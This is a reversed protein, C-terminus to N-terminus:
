FTRLDDGWSADVSAELFKKIDDLICGSGGIRDARRVYGVAMEATYEEVVVVGSKRRWMEEGFSRHGFYAEAEVKMVGDVVVPLREYHGIGVGELEDLRALAKDTVFYLEGAVRFGSGPINILYPIGHPGIILPFSTSTKHPGLFTADKDSILDLLLNHNPFGRKLTGYAFVLTRNQIPHSAPTAM